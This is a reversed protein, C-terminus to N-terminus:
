LGYGALMDALLEMPMGIVNSESGRTIHLWGPRDQYGFAGAKGRWQGSALYEELQLDAISDMRLHTTAVRIEPSNASTSQGVGRAPLPWVCLGSYVRHDNDRLRRLMRRAHQEDVPKGLIEGRCEAVTDCAIILCDGDPGEQGAALWGRSWTPGKACPWTLLWGPQVQRAAFGM